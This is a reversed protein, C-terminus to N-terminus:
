IRFPSYSKLEQVSSTKRFRDSLFWEALILLSFDGVLIEHNHDGISFEPIKINNLCNFGCIDTRDDVILTNYRNHSPHVTYINELPKFRCAGDPNGVQIENCDNRTMVFKPRRNVFLLDVLKHVYEYTGASWVSVTDFEAFAVELFLEAHPRVYTWMSGSGDSFDLKKIRKKDLEGLEEIFSALEAEHGFTHVMTEDLDLVLHKGNTKGSRQSIVMRSKVAESRKQSETICRPQIYDSKANLTSEIKSALTQPTSPKQITMMSPMNPGLNMTPPPGKPQITIM